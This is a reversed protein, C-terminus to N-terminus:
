LHAQQLCTAVAVATCDTELSPAALQEDVLTWGGKLRKLSEVDGTDRIVLHRM